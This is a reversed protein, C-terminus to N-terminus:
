QRQCLQRGTPQTLQITASDSLHLTVTGDSFKRAFPAPIESLALPGTGPRELQAVNGANSLTVRVISGDDCLYSPTAPAGLSPAVPPSGPATAVGLDLQVLPAKPTATAAGLDLQVLPAKRTAPTAAGAGLDLQVLPGAAAGATFCGDTFTRIATAAGDASATAFSGGETGVSVEGGARLAAWLPARGGIEVRVGAYESSDEFVTGSYTYSQGGVRFVAQVAEGPLAAGPDVILDVEVTRAGTGPGCTTAVLVADSEPIGYVLAITDAGADDKYANTFWHPGDFTETAAGPEILPKAEGAGVTVAPAAPAADAVYPIGNWGCHAKFIDLTDGSNRLGIGAEVGAFRVDARRGAQLAAVLPHNAPLHFQPVFGVLGQEVTDANFTFVEGDIDFAIENIPASPKPDVAAFPVSVLADSGKGQCAILLGLDDGCQLCDVAVIDGELGSAGWTRSQAVAPGTLIAAVSAVLFLLLGDFSKTM